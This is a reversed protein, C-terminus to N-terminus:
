EWYTLVAAPTMAPNWSMNRLNYAAIWTTLCMIRLHPISVLMERRGALVSRPIAAPSVVDSIYQFSVQALRAFISVRVLFIPGIVVM